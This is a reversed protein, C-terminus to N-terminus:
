ITGGGGLRLVVEAVVALKKVNGGGVYRAVMLLLDEGMCLVLRGRVQLVVFEHGSRSGWIASRWALVRILWVDLVWSHGSRLLLLLPPPHSLFLVHALPLLHLLFTIRSKQVKVFRIAEIWNKVLAYFLKQCRYLEVRPWVDNGYHCKQFILWNKLKLDEFNLCIFNSFIVFTDDRWKISRNLSLQYRYRSNFHCFQM